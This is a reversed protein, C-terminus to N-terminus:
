NMSYSFDQEILVSGLSPCDSPDGGKLKGRDSKITETSTMQFTQLEKPFTQNIRVKCKKIM